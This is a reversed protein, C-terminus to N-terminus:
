PLSPWRRRHPRVASRRGTDDLAIQQPGSSIGETRSVYGLKDDSVGSVNALARASPNTRTATM